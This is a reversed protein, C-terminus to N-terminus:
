INTINVFKETIPDRYFLQFVSSSSCKSFQNSWKKFAELTPDETPKSNQNLFVCVSKTPNLLFFTDGWHTSMISKVQRTPQPDLPSLSSTSTTPSINFCVFDIEDSMYDAFFLVSIPAAAKQTGTYIASFELKRLKIGLAGEGINVWDSMFSHFFDIEQFFKSNDKHFQYKLSSVNPFFEYSFPGFNFGAKMCGLPLHAVSSASLILREISPMSGLCNLHLNQVNFVLTKISSFRAFLNLSMFQCGCAKDFRGHFELEKVNPLLGLLHPLYALHSVEELQVTVKRIADNKPLVLAEDNDNLQKALTKIYAINKMWASYFTILKSSNFNLNSSKLEKPLSTFQFDLRLIELCNNLCDSSTTPSTLLQVEDSFLSLKGIPTKVLRATGKSLSVVGGISKVFNESVPPARNKITITTKSIASPSKM